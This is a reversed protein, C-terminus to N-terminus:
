LPPFFSDLPMVHLLSPTPGVAPPLSPATLAHVPRAARRLPASRTLGHLKQFGPARLVKPGAAVPM